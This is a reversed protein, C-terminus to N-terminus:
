YMDFEVLLNRLRTCLTEVLAQAFLPNTEMVTTLSQNNIELAIVDTKATVTATRPEKLFLAM